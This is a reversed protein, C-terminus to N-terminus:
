EGGGGGEHCEAPDLPESPGIKLDLENYSISASGFTLNYWRGFIKIRLIPMTSFAGKKRVKDIAITKCACPGVCAYYGQVLQYDRGPFPILRGLLRILMNTAANIIWNVGPIRVIPILPPLAINYVVDANGDRFVGSTCTQGTEGRHCIKTSFVQSRSIEQTHTGEHILEWDFWGGAGFVSLHDINTTLYEMSSHVTFKKGTDIWDEAIKDYYWLPIEDELAFSDAETIALRIEVPQSIEQGSTQIEISVIPFFETNTPVSTFYEYKFFVESSSNLAGPPFVIQNHNKDTIIGGENGIQKQNPIKELYISFNREQRIFGYKLSVGGSGYGSKEALINVLDDDDGFPLEFLVKGEEDTTILHNFVRVTANEIPNSSEVDYVVVVAKFPYTIIVPEVDKRCSLPAFLFIIALTALLISKLYTRTQKM